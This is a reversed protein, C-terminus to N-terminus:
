SLPNEDNGLVWHLGKIVGALANINRFHCAVMSRDSKDITELQRVWADRIREARRLM